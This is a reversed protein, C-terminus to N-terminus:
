NDEGTSIPNVSVTIELPDEPFSQRWFPRLELYAKAIEPFGSLVSQAATRSKGAVAGAVKSTDVQWVLDAEGSLTFSFESSADPASDSAPSLTLNEVSAVLLSQNAYENGIIFPAMARALASEPFVVAVANAQESVLVGGKGDAADNQPTYTSFISGPVLVYGDKMKATVEAELQSSLMAALKAHERDSTDQSVAPRTGSFGGSMAGTSKAYVQDAQATNALGPLTFTTAGVNYDAGPSDAYVTVSLSGPSGTRAAPVTIGDRIRFILGEPTQFRTNKVLPQAKEQENYVTITGHATDSATVTSEADVSESATKQVTILSFPLTGSEYTATFTGAVSGTDVRPDITIKAGSFLYLAGICLAVIIISVVATGWPFKSRSRQRPSTAYQQPADQSVEAAEEM